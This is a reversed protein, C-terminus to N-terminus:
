PQSRQLDGREHLGRLRWRGDSVPLDSRRRSGHLECSLGTVNTYGKPNTINPAAPPAIVLVGPSTATTTGGYTQATVTVLDCSGNRNNQNTTDTTSSKPGNTDFPTGSVNACNADGTNTRYWRYTYEVGAGTLGATITATQNQGAPAPSPTIAITGASPAAIAFCAWEFTGVGPVNWGGGAGGAGDSVWFGAFNVGGVTFVCTDGSTHANISQDTFVGALGQYGPDGNTAGGPAFNNGGTAAASCNTVCTAPTNTSPLGPPLSPTAGGAVLGSGASSLLGRLEGRLFTLSAIVGVGVIAIILAYEVLGQARENHRLRRLAHRLSNTRQSGKM